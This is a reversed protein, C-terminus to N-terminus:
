GNAVAKGRELNNSSIRVSELENSIHSPPTDTAFRIFEFLRPPCELKNSNLKQLERVRAVRLRLSLSPTKEYCEKTM